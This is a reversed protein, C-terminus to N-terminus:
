GGGLKVRVEEGSKMEVPEEAPERLLGLLMTGLVYILGAGLGGALALMHRQGPNRKGVMVWFRFCMLLWLVAMLAVGFEGTMMGWRSEESEVM